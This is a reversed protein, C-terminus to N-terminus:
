FNCPTEQPLTHPCEEEKPNFKECLEGVEKLLEIDCNLIKAYQEFYKSPFIYSEIHFWEATHIGYYDGLQKKLKDSLKSYKGKTFHDYDEAHPNLDFVYAIMNDEIPFCCELLHHTLLHNKEFDRWGDTDKKAFVCVLKRDEIKCFGDWTLYTRKPLPHRNKKFGLIPFLFANSKQFYSRYIETIM